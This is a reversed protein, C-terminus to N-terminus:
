QSKLKSRGLIFSLSGTAYFNSYARSALEYSSSQRGELSVIWTLGASIDIRGLFTWGLEPSISWYWRNYPQEFQFLASEPISENEPWIEPLARTVRKHWGLIPGTSFGGYFGSRNVRQRWLPKQLGRALAILADHKIFRPYIRLGMRFGIYNSSPVRDYRTQMALNWSSSSSSYDYANTTYTWGPSMTFEGLLMFDVQAGFPLLAGVRGGYYEPRVGVLGRVAGDAFAYVGGVLFRAGLKDRNISQQSNISTTDGVYQTGLAPFTCPILLISVIMCSWHRSWSGGTPRVLARGEVKSEAHEPKM